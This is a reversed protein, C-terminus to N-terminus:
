LKRVFLYVFGLFAFLIIFFGFFGLVVYGINPLSNNNLFQAFQPLLYQDKGSLSTKITVSDFFMDRTGSTNDLESQITWFQFSYWAGKVYLIRCLGVQEEEEYQVTFSIDKWLLGDKEFVNQELLTGNISTLFGTEFENYNKLLDNKDKVPAGRTLTAVVRANEIDATIMRSGQEIKEDHESPVSVQINQDFDFMMLSQASINFSSLIFLSLLLSKLKRM